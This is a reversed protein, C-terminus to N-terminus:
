MQSNCSIKREIMNVISGITSIAEYDYDDAEISINFSKEIDMLLTIMNLSDFSLEKFINSEDVIELPINEKKINKILSLLETKIAEKTM